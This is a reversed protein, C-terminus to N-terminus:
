QRRRELLLSGGVCLVLAGVWNLTSQSVETHALAPMWEHWHIVTTAFGAGTVAAVMGWQFRTDTRDTGHNQEIAAAVQAAFDDPIPALPPDRLAQAVLDDPEPTLDSNM